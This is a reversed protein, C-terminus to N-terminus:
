GGVIAVVALLHVTYQEDTPIEYDRTFALNMSYNARPQGPADGKLHWYKQLFFVDLLGPDDKFFEFARQAMMDEPIVEFVETPAEIPIEDDTRLSVYNGDKEECFLAWSSPYFPVATRVQRDWRDEISGVLDSVRDGPEYQFEIWGKQYPCELLGTLERTNM